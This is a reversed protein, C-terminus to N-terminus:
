ASMAGRVVESFLRTGGQHDVKLLPALLRFREGTSLSTFFVEKSAMAVFHCFHGLEGISATVFSVFNRVAESHIAEQLSIAVLDALTCSKDIIVETAIILFEVMNIAGVKTVEAAITMLQYTADAATALYISGAELVKGGTELTTDIIIPTIDIVIETAKLSIDKCCEGGVKALRVLPALVFDFTLDSGNYSIPALCWLLISLKLLTWCTSLQPHGQLREELLPQVLQEVLLVATIAVFYRLLLYTPKFIDVNIM